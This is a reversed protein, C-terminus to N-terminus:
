KDPETRDKFKFDAVERTLPNRVYHIEVGHVTQSMKVWGETAPWRPDHLTVNTLVEGYEPFDQVLNIAEAEERSGPTTRGTSEKPGAAVEEDSKLHRTPRGVVLRIEGNIRLKYVRAAESLTDSAVEAKRSAGAVHQFTFSSISRAVEELHKRAVIIARRSQM